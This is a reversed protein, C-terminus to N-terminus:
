KKFFFFNRKEERLRKPNRRKFPSRCAYVPRFVDYVHLPLFYCRLFATRINNNNEIPRLESVTARPSRVPRRRRRRCM